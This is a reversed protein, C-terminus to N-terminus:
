PQKLRPAWNNVDAGVLVAVGTGPQLPFNNGRWADAFWLWSETRGTAPNLWAVKTVPGALPGGNLAQVLSQADTYIANLPLSLLNVNGVNTHFALDYAPAVNEAGLLNWNLATAVTVEIADGPVLAFNIGSWSGSQRLWERRAQTARDIHAIRTVPGTGGGNMSTVLSAADGYGQAAPLALWVTRAPAGAPDISIRRRLGLNSFHRSEVGSANEATVFYYLDTGVNGSGM